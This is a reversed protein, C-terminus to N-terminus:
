IELQEATETQLKELEALKDQFARLEEVVAKQTAPDPIPIEFSSWSPTPLKGATNGAEEVMGQLQNNAGWIMHALYVPNIKKDPVVAKLDQNITCPMYNVAVPVYRYLISGRVVFLVSKEPILKASSEALGKETIKLGSDTLAFKKMDKASIWPIDGDWFDARQKSPTGGGMVKGCKGLPRTPWELSLSEFLKRRVHFFQTSIQKIAEQRLKRAEEARRTLEEIRTVIRRQENIDKPFIVEILPMTKTNLTLGKAADGVNATLNAVQLAYFLFKNDIRGNKPTFAAIAENTYLDCGAFAMKGITLKFSFLLTGKAVKKPKAEKIAIDTILEDTETLEKGFELSAITAWKHTGNQWYRSESRKPTKGISIDVLNGLTNVVWDEPVFRDSM